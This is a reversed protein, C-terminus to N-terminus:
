RREVGGGFLGRPRAIVAVMAVGLVIISGVTANLVLTLVSDAGGILMTGGLAGVFAGTGGTIVVLFSQVLYNAGMTPVVSVLPAVLAGGLGALAAGVAFAAMSMRSSNIGFVQAMASDDITARAGLGFPTRHFLVFVAVIVALSIAMAILKYTIFPQGLLVVHGRIPAALTQAEDGILLAVARQLMISVGATALLTSLGGRTYLPRIITREMIVGLLAVVVPAAVLGVWFSVGHEVVWWTTYAGIMFFEGHAMNIVRMMGFIVYLGLAVVALFLIAAIVNLADGILAGGSAFSTVVAPTM